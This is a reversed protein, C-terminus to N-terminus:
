ATNEMNGFGVPVVDSQEMYGFGMPMVDSQLLAAVLQVAKRLTPHSDYADLACRYALSVFSPDM